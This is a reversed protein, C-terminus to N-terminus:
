AQKPAAVASWKALVADLDLAVPLFADDLSLGAAMREAVGTIDRASAAIRLAMAAGIPVPQGVHCVPGRGPQRLAIYISQAAAPSAPAGAADLVILPVVAARPPGDVAVRVLPLRRARQSVADVFHRAIADITDEGLAAMTEIGDLAAVWRLGLGINATTELVPAAIGRLREPWDYLACYDALGMPLPNGAALREVLAAPILLAGSFPPGGALKSGTVIVSFGDALDRRVQSLPCRLQCADVVVQVRGGAAALLARATARTVGACGTKSADLVHLLVDHGAALAADVATAADRDIAEPTRLVGRADRIAISRTEIAATELGAIRRGSEVEAAFPSSPLFHRGLAAAPVGSGTEEPAVVINVLPRRTLRTALSVAILEADTGSPALVIEAGPAAFLRALRQRVTEIWDDLVIAAGPGDPDLRDIAALVADFARATLPSATTSSFAIDGRAPHLALGYRNLGTAPDPWIRADGGAALMLAARQRRPDSPTRRSVPAFINAAASQATRGAM